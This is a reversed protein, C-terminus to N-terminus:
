NICYKAFFQFPLSVLSFFRHLGKWFASFVPSLISGFLIEWVATGTLLSITYAFRPDGGCLGFCLYIWLWFLMGIFLLDGLWRPRVPRLFGYFLGLGCGLLFGQWLHLFSSM